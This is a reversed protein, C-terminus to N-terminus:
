HFDQSSKKSQDTKSLIEQLLLGGNEKFFGERVQRIGCCVYSLAVFAVLIGVSAGYHDSICGQGDKRGDGHHGQPCSCAYSGVRNVCLNPYYVYISAQTQVNMSIKVVVQFILIGMIDRLDIVVIVLEMTLTMVCVIMAAVLMLRLFGKLKKARQTGWEDDDSSATIWFNKMEKPIYIQRCGTGFCSGNVIDSFGQCQSSCESAYGDVEASSSGYLSASTDCGIPAFEYIVM